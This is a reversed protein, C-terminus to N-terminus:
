RYDDEGWKSKFLLSPDKVKLTFDKDKSTKKILESKNISIEFKINKLFNVSNNVLNAELRNFSTEKLAFTCALEDVSDREWKEDGKMKHIVYLCDDKNTNKSNIEIMWKKSKAIQIYEDPHDGACFSQNFDNGHFIIHSTEFNYRCVFTTKSDCHFVINIYDPNIM